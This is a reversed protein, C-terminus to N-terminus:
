LPLALAPPLSAVQSLKFIEWHGSPLKSERSCDAQNPFLKHGVSFAWMLRPFKYNMVLCLHLEYMEAIVLM